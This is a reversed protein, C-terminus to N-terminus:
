LLVEARSYQRYCAGHILHRCRDAGQFFVDNAFLSWLFLVSVVKVYKFVHTHFKDAKIIVGVRMGSIFVAGTGAVWVDIFSCSRACWRPSGSRSSSRSTAAAFRRLNLCSM